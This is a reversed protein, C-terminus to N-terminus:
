SHFLIPKQTVSKIADILEQPNVPKEFVYKFKNLLAASLSSKFGTLLILEVDPQKLRIKEALEDGKMDPLAYDLIVVGFRRAQAKEIAAVGCYAVEVNFGETKLIVRFLNTSRKDNDVLMVPQAHAM